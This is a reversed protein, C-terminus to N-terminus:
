RNDFLRKKEKLRNSLVNIATKYEIILKNIKNKDTNKTNQHNHSSSLYVKKDSELMKLYSELLPIPNLRDDEFM